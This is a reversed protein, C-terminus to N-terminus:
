EDEDFTVENSIENIDNKEEPFYKSLSEGLQRVVECIGDAPRQAKLFKALTEKEQHWYDAPVVKNIGTDGVIAFKRSKYAIFLLVANRRETKYLGLKNFKQEAKKMMDGSCKPTVHVCIEGSTHREAEAIAETIRKGEEPSIFDSLSM